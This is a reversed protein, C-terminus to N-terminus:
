IPVPRDISRDRESSGHQGHPAIRHFGLFLLLMTTREAYKLRDNREKKEKKKKTLHRMSKNYLGCVVGYLHRSWFHFM